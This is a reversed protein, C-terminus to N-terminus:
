NISKWQEILENTSDGEGSNNRAWPSTKKKKQPTPPHSRFLHTEIFIQIKTKSPGMKQVGQNKPHNLFKQSKRGVAAVDNWTESVNKKFTPAITPPFIDM